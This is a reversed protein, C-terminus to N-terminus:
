ISRNKNALTGLGRYSLRGPQGTMEGRLVPSVGTRSTKYHFDSLKPIILEFFSLDQNVKGGQLTYLCFSM